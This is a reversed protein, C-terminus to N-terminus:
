PVLGTVFVPAKFPRVSPWQLCKHLPLAKRVSPQITEDPGREINGLSQM